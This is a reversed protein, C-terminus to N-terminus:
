YLAPSFGVYLINALTELDTMTKFELSWSPYFYNVGFPAPHNGGMENNSLSVHNSSEGLSLVGELLSPKDSTLIGLTNLCSIM